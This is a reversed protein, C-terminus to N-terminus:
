PEVRLSVHEFQCVADSRLGNALVTVGVAVTHTTVTDIRRSFVERDNIYFRYYNGDGEVGLTTTTRERPSVVNWRNVYPLGSTEDLLLGHFGSAFLPSNQVIQYAIAKEGDHVHQLRFTFYNRIDKIGFLLPCTVAAGGDIKTVRAAFLFHSPLPGGNLYFGQQTTGTESQLDLRIRDGSWDLRARGFADLTNEATGNAGSALPVARWHSARAAAARSPHTTVAYYTIQIGAVVAIITAIAIAIRLRWAAAVVIVIAVVAAILPKQLIKEADALQQNAVPPLILTAFACVLALIAAIAKRIATDRLSAKATLTSPTSPQLGGRLRVPPKKARLSRRSDWRGWMPM